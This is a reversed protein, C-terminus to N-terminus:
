RIGLENRRKESKIFEVKRFRLASWDDDISIQRVGMMNYPAFIKWSTDRNFDCTYKKSTGKPYAAWVIADGQLNNSVLKIAAELENKKTAFILIFEVIDNLKIEKNVIIEASITSLVPEFADPSNLVFITQGEKYNLKTFLSDM